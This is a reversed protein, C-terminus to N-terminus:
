DSSPDNSFVYSELAGIGTDRFVDKHILKYGSHRYFGVNCNDTTYFYYRGASGSTFGTDRLLRTGVGRGQVTPSVAFLVLESDFNGGAKAMAAKCLSETWDYFRFTADCADDSALASRIRAEESSYVSGDLPETFIHGGIFGIVKGGSVAVESRNILSLYHYVFHWIMEEGRGPAYRGLVGSWIESVLVKVGELDSDEYKRYSIEM